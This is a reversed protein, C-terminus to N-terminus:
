DLRDLTYELSDGAADTVRLRVPGGSGLALGCASAEDEGQLKNQNSYAEVVSRIGHLESRLTEPFLASTNNCWDIANNLLFVIGTYTSRAGFWNAPMDCVGTVKWWTAGKLGWDGALSGNVRRYWSVPNRRDERDWQLIPPADPHVATTLGVYDGRVPTFLEIDRCTPLVTRAFKEWTMTKGPLRLNRSAKAEEGRAKVGAFVGGRTPKDVAPTPRWLLEVDELRAYRRVLSPGLGMQDVLKEAADIAGAKPAAQPRQYQLPHM